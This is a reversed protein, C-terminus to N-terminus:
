ETETEREVGILADIAAIRADLFSMCSSHQEATMRSKVEHLEQQRRREDMLAQKEELLQQQLEVLSDGTSVITAM